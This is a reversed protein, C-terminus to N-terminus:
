MGRTVLTPKFTLRRKFVLSLHAVTYLSGELRIRDLEGGMRAM